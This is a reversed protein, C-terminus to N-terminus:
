HCVPSAIGRKAAQLLDSIGMTGELSLNQLGRDADDSCFGSDCMATPAQRTRIFKQTERLDPSELDFQVPSSFQVLCDSCFQDLRDLKSPEFFRNYTLVMMAVLLAAAV